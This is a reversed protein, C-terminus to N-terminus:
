SIKINGSQLSNKDGPVAGYYSFLGTRPQSLEFRGARDRDSIERVTKPSAIFVRDNLFYPSKLNSYKYPLDLYEPKYLEEPLLAWGFFKQLTL